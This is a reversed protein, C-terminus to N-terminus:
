KVGVASFHLQKAADILHYATTGEKSTKTLERLRERPFNGKYYRIIMLLCSVGCDKSDNQKVFPLKM